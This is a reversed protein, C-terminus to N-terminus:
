DKLTHEFEQILRDLKENMKQADEESRIDDLRSVLQALWSKFQLDTMGVEFDSV